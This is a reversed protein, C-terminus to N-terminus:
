GEFRYQVDDIYIYVTYSTQNRYFWIADLSVTNSLVGNGNVWANWQSSDDLWWEVYTWQNPSLAKSDSRETGDNDDVSVAVSVGSAGTYVWFGIRGGAKSLSNNNSPNGGGSLFRVAWNANTSSNDILKIQESYSGNKSISSTRQATSSSSIGTTSGSYSPSHTFNGESSEFSDLIKDNPSSGGNILAYYRPWDWNIGPDTHTQGSFHQHGKIKISSSLVVVGSSSAGNYTKKCDIGYRICFHKVLNASANYMSTTYWAPNNM